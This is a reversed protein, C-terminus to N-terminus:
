KKTRLWGIRYALAAIQPACYELTRDDDEAVASNYMLIIEDMLNKSLEPLQASGAQHKEM